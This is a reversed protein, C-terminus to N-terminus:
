AKENEKDFLKTEVMDRFQKTKIRSAQQLKKRWVM